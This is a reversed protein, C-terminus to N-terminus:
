HFIHRQNKIIYLMPPSGMTVSHQGNTHQHIHARRESFRKTQKPVFGVCLAQSRSRGRSRFHFFSPLDCLLCLTLQCLLVPSILRSSIATLLLLLVCDVSSLMPKQPHKACFVRGHYDVFACLVACFTDFLSEKRASPASGLGHKNTLEKRGGDRNHETYGYLFTYHGQDSTLSVM